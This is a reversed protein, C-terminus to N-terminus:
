IGKFHLESPFLPTFHAATPKRPSYKRSLLPVEAMFYATGKGKGLGCMGNLGSDIYKCYAHERM